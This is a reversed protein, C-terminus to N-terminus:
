TGLKLWLRATSVKKEVRGEKRRYLVLYLFISTISTWHGKLYAICQLVRALWLKMCTDTWFELNPIKLLQLVVARHVLYQKVHRDVWSTIIWLLVLETDTSGLKMSWNNNTPVHTISDHTMLHNHSYPLLSVKDVHCSKLIFSNM